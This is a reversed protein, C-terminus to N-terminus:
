VNNEGYSGPKWETEAGNSEIVKRYWYYSDKRIREGTGTSDDNYDVYILGYRKKREGTSLSLTDLLSWPSYGILEVGDEDVAKRFAEIHQRLFEIRYSDHIHGNEDVSDEAGLGNGIIFLPLQYREYLENMAIRLGIPDISWGWESKKLYPNNVGGFSMNGNQSGTIGPDASVNNSNYYSFSIFDVTNEKLLQKEAESLSIHIGNREYEKLKYAPYYGRVAVDFWFHMEHMALRSLLVDDPSCTNPYAAGYAVHTSVLNSSDTEHLIRVAEAQAVLQNRSAQAITQPDNQPVGSIMFTCNDIVNMESFTIWYRIKGKYRDALTKVYRLYCTVTREDKWSGWQNVLGLPTGYHSIMVIPELRYKLLEDILADYFALGDENPKEEDGNPFIRTWAISMRFSNAGSEYALRIDETYRHYFDSGLKSPYEFGPFQGFRCGNNVNVRYFPATCVTGNEDAYTVQRLSKRNEGCSMCDATSLGKGNEDFAGEHQNATIGASWLFDKKLGM